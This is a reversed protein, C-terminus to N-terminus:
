KVEIGSYTSHNCPQCDNHLHVSRICGSLPPCSHSTLPFSEDVDHIADSSFVV